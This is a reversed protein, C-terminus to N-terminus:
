VGAGENVCTVGRTPITEFRGRKRNARWAREVRTLPQGDDEGILAIVEPEAEKGISCVGHVIDRHKGLPPLVLVDLVEELTPEGTAQTAVTKLLWLMRTGGKSVERLEFVLPIAEGSKAGLIFGNGNELGSPLSSGIKLGVYKKMSGGAGAGRSAPQGFAPRVSISVVLVVGLALRRM